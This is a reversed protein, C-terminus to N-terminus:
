TTQYALNFRTTPSLTLEIEKQLAPSGVDGLLDAVVRRVYPRYNKALSVIRKLESPSYQSFYQSRLRNYVDRETTGPIRKMDKIADLVRL